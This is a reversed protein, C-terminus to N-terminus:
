RYLSKLQGWTRSRSGVTACSVCNAGVSANGSGPSTSSLNAAIGEGGATAATNYFVAQNWTMGVSSQCGACEGGGLGVANDEFFALTFGFHAGVGTNAALTVPSSSARALTILLRGRNAPFNISSGYAYGSFPTCATGGTGCLTNTNGTSPLLGGCGLGPKGATLALGSFNCGNQQFQWFPEVQTPTSPFIFDIIGDMAVVGPTSLAVSFTGQLQHVTGGDCLFTETPTGGSNACATWAMHLGDQAMAASSVLMMGACLTLLKKM